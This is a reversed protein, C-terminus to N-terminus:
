HRDALKKLQERTNLLPEEIVKDLLYNLTEGAARGCIGMEHLADGDIDLDCIRYPENKQIIDSLTAKAAETDIDFLATYATLLAFLDGKDVTSLMRKLNPRELPQISSLMGYLNIVANRAAKDSKLATMVEKPEGNCLYILVALRVNINLSIRDLPLLSACECLGVHRLGGSKILIETLSPKGGRLTKKLEFYIREASVNQLTPALKIAAKLTNQEISYGLTSAFRIARMIRLADEDFRKEADGVTRLVGHEIDKQGGFCDFLGLSLSYGIANVTFDRRSLDDKFSGTFKVSDPRRHDAYGGDIRYRTVEIPEGDYIVTVTGHKIGTEIVREFMTCVAECPANSAIDYDHPTEGRLLDRVCGGVLWAEYGEHEIKDIVATVSPPIIFKEM